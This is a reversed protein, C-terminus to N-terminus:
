VRLKMGNVRLWERCEQYDPMVRAVEKWFEPSHDHHILHCLEHKVVYDVMRNPAMLIMWNFELKGNVTCSGWRSKFFKIEVGKPEVGVIPAFRKVKEHMKQQAQKKYWRVLANRIMHPQESGLPVTVLLRGEVLKVPCFNGKEVKLRYNRGLYPFSEGSLFEKHSTPSLDRQLLIKEKIWKRKSILLQDIKETAIHRPVIISVAGDEVRIDATKRRDTRIVEVIFDNGDRYETQMDTM